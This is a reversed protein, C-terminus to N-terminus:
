SGRERDFYQPITQSAKRHSVSPASQLPLVVGPSCRPEFTGIEAIRELHPKRPGGQQFHSVDLEERVNLQGECRRDLGEAVDLLARGQGERHRGFQDRGLVCDLGQSVGSM